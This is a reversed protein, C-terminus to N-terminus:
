LSTNEELTGSLEVNDNFMFGESADWAFTSSNQPTDSFEINQFDIFGINIAGSAGSSNSPDDFNIGNGDLDLQSNPNGWDDLSRNQTNLNTVHGDSDLSIDDIVTGGGTTVNGQSSTGVTQVRTGQESLTGNPVNVDPGNSLGGSGDSTGTVDLGSINDVAFTYGVTDGSTSASTVSSNIVQTLSDEPAEISGIDAGQLFETSGQKPQRILEVNNAEDKIVLEDSSSEYFFSFDNNDAGFYLEIDDGLEAGNFSGTDLEAINDSDGDSFAGGSIDGWSATSGDTTLVQGSTGNDGSWDSADRNQTNLNTVHGRGDVEIDDIVTEGSTTVNGQSSTDAHDVTVSGGLSASGGTTLDTGATVTVSSNTLTSNAISGMASDPIEDGSSDYVVQGDVSLDGNPIEINGGPKFRAVDHSNSTDYVSLTSGQTYIYGESGSPLRYANAQIRGNPIKVNGSNDIKFHEEQNGSGDTGYFRYTTANGGTNFYVTSNDQFEFDFNTEANGYFRRVGQIRNGDMNLDGNPINVNRGSNLVIDDNANTEIGFDASDANDRWKIDSGSSLRITGTNADPGVGIRRLAGEDFDVKDQDIVIGDNTNGGPRLFISDGATPTDITINNSPNLKITANGDDTTNRWAIASDNALRITGTNADTTGGVKTLNAGTFHISGSTAAADIRINDASDTGIISIDDDDANNRAVVRENNALRIAGTNADTTGGVNRLQSGELDFIGDDIHVGSGTNGAPRLFIKDGTSATDIALNDNSFPTITVDGDDTSNRWAIPNSNALRIAGTSADTTGGVNILDNGGFDINSSLTAGEIASIANSDTYKTHHQDSLVNSLNTHNIATSGGLSVNNGAVTISDNELQSQPIYTASEDWITEGDKATLDSDLSLNGSIGVNVTDGLEGSGGDLGNNGSITLSSFLKTDINDFVKETSSLHMESTSPHSVATTSEQGRTVTLTDNTTDRGTVRIVEVDPDEEPRGLEADWIVLNYNGNAPDPYISADVVNITTDGSAVSSSVAGRVFNATQDLTM